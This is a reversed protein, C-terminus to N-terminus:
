DVKPRRALLGASLLTLVAMSTPEPVVNVTVSASSVDSLLTADAIGIGLDPSFSAIFDTSEGMAGDAQVSLTGLLIRRTYLDIPDLNASVPSGLPSLVSMEYVGGALPSSAGLDWAPAAAFSVFSVAPSSSSLVFSAFTVGKDPGFSPLDPPAAFEELYVPINATGGAALAYSPQM